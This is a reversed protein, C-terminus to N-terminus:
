NEKRGNNGGRNQYISSTIIVRFGTNKDMVPGNSKGCFCIGAM